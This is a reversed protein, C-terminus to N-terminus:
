QFAPAVADKFLRPTDGRAYNLFSLIIHGVGADVYANLDEQIDAPTGGHLEYHEGWHKVRRAASDAEARNDAMTFWFDSVTTIDAPNRGLQECMRDLEQRKRVVVSLKSEACHTRYSKWGGVEWLDAHKATLELMKTSAGGILIPPSPTQVPMPRPDASTLRLFEGEYNVKDETFHLAMAQLTERLKTVRRSYPESELGYEEFCFKVGVGLGITLRGESFQDLSALTRLLLQPTRLMFNVVGLGVRIRSTATAVASTLTMCEFVGPDILDPVWVTSFGVEEAILARELTAKGTRASPLYVGFDTKAHSM